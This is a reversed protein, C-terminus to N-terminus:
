TRPPGTRVTGTLPDRGTLCYPEGVPDALAIWSPFRALIRAGAAVHREALAARHDGAAFDLHGTVRDGVQAQDRRQLLLRVPIGPPRVLYAFEPLSGSQLQWGTLHAWFACEREYADPPIDLCLQDLRDGVPKPVAAEGHWGVLCFPFGGPSDLVILGAERHRVAAGLASARAAVDILSEVRADIHLDLHRGGGERVRQVRLYADGNEPLLTTFEGDAGRPASLTSGTVAAWFAVATDFGEAPLDLFPTVWRIPQGQSPRAEPGTM